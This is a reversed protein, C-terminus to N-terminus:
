FLFSYENSEESHKESSIKPIGIQYSTTREIFIPTNLNNLLWEYLCETNIYEAILYNILFEVDPVDYEIAYGLDNDEIFTIYDKDWPILSVDSSNICRIDGNLNILCIKDSELIM